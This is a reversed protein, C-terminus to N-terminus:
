KPTPIDIISSARRQNPQQVAPNDQQVASLFRDSVFNTAADSM